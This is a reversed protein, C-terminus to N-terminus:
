FNRLIGFLAFAVALTIVVGPRVMFRSIKGAPKWGTFCSVNVLILWLIAYLILCFIFPNMSFAASFQGTFFYRVCRTAGCSPCQVGLLTFVCPPGSSLMFQSIHPILLALALIGLDALLLLIQKKTMANPFM